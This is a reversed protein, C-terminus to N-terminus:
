PYLIIITIVIVGVVNVIVLKKALNMIIWIQSFVIISIIAIVIPVVYYKRIPNTKDDM